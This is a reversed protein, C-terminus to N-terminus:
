PPHRSVSIEVMISKINNEFAFIKNNFLLLARSGNIQIRESIKM